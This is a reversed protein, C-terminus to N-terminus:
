VSPWFDKVIYEDVKDPRDFFYDEILPFIEQDWVERLVTSTIQQHLVYSHGITHHRDIDEILKSNLKEFGDVLEPGLANTNEPKAYHRTIIESKAGLEFFRFRRRMAVDLTRISRDATNMTGIIILEDPLNFERDDLMLKMSRDRYELLFMLEGFVRSINARNIEDIILVRTEGDGEITRNGSIEEALQVLVGPVRQFEFGGNDGAIPRLGEVLDEYGYSPHFQILRVKSPDKVLLPAIQQAVYTKGTGPPGMLIMQRKRGTVGNLLKQIEEVSMNLTEAVQMLREDFSPEIVNKVEATAQVKENVYWANEDPLLVSSIKQTPNSEAVLIDDLKPFIDEEDIASFTLCTEQGTLKNEYYAPMLSKDVAIIGQVISTITARHMKPTSGGMLYAFTPVGSNIQSKLENMKTDSLPEGFKAWVASEFQNLLKRYQVIPDFGDSESDAWRLLLHTPEGNKSMAADGEYLKGLMGLLAKTNKIIEDDGPVSGKKYVVGDVHGLEYSKGLSGGRLEPKSTLRNMPVGGYPAWGRGPGEVDSDDLFEFAKQARDQIQKNRDAGIVSTTGQNLSVVCSSGDAAFLLVVYWGSQASSSKTRDTLRAWAVKPSNGAGLSVDGSLNWQTGNPWGFKPGCASVLLQSLEELVSRREVMAPDHISISYQTQLQLVREILQSIKSNSM